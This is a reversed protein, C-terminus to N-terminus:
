RSPTAAGSQLASKVVDEVRAGEAVGRARVRDVADQAARPTLGLSVLALIAEELLTGRRDVMSAAAGRLAIKGKLEVVMRAATKKGVGPLRVLYTEDGDHVARLLEELPASSLLTLAVRPGVGNVALLQLFLGREDESGFGYLVLADERVHLYTFLTFTDGLPPVLAATRASVQLALGLGGVELVLAPERAVVRGRVSAIM